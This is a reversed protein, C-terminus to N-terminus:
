SLRLADAVREAGEADVVGLAERSMNSLYQSAMRSLADAYDTASLQDCWGLNCVVGAKDLAQAIMVQNEALIAVLAPAGLACREWNSSGGAGIVLDAQAILAPMYDVQCHYGWHLEECKKQITDNNPNARGVVVDVRKAQGFMEVGRMAKLTEGQDDGSTFFVLVNELKSRPEIHERLVRFEKRLLAYHTGLLVLCASPVLGAYRQARDESYNQDLLVDCDHERALDDIAMIHRAFPRLRREWEFDLGYHDVVLWDPTDGELAQITQEADEAQTVGL